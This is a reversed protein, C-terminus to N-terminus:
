GPSRETLPLLALTTVTCFHGRQPCSTLPIAVTFCYNQNTNLECIAILVLSYIWSPLEKCVTIDQNDSAM